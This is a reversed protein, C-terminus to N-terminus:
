PNLGTVKYSTVKYSELAQGSADYLQRVSGLADRGFYQM